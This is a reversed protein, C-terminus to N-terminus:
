LEVTSGIGLELRGALRATLVVSGPDVLLALLERATPENGAGATQLLRYERVPSDRLVDVGLVRVAEAGEGARPRLMADGEIVPSVEGYERLWGLERLRFEDIGAGAGVIELSTRGAV